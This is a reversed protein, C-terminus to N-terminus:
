SQWTRKAFNREEAGLVNLYIATTTISAHGMWKQILTLPVNHIVSNVAFSHRLGRSCAKTGSIGADSMM